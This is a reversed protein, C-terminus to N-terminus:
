RIGARWDALWDGLAVKLLVSESIFKQKAAKRVTKIEEDNLEIQIKTSNTM